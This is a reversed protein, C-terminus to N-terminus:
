AVQPMEKLLAIIGAHDLFLNPVNEAFWYVSTDNRIMELIAIINKGVSVTPFGLPSMDLYVLNDNECHKIDLWATFRSNNIMPRWLAHAIVTAM